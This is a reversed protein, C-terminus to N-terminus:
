NAESYNTPMFQGYNAIYLDDGTIIYYRCIAYEPFYLIIIPMEPSNEISTMGVLVWTEEFMKNTIAMLGRFILNDIAKEEESLEELCIGNENFRIPAMEPSWISQVDIEIEIEIKEPDKNSTIIKANGSLKKRKGMYFDNWIEIDNLEGLLLIDGTKKIEKKMIKYKQPKNRKNKIKKRKFTLKM